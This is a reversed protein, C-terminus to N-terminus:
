IDEPTYTCDRSSVVSDPMGPCFAIAKVTCDTDITFPGDYAESSADPESGDTTYYISAGETDCTITVEDSKCSIVPAFVSIMHSVYYAPGGVQATGLYEDRKGIMTVVDGEKIGLSSFSKDNKVVETATLGYVYVSGTGDTLDFNGYTTNQIGTVVGELQYRTDSPVLSLFDEITIEAPPDTPESSYESELTFTRLVSELMGEHFAVASVVDSFDIQFPETYLISEQTPYSGDLTYYVSAGETGCTITVTNSECSIEPAMASPRHSIYYANIMQPSGNHSSRKGAITVEDDLKLGLSLYNERFGGKRDLLGYVYVESTADQIWIDGHENGKDSIIRGTIEYWTTSEEALLFEQVTVPTPSVDRDYEFNLTKIKGPSFTVDKTLVVIKETGNVSLKLAEGEEATFPKVGIYFEATGEPQIPDADRVSLTAIPSVYTEGRPTYVIPDSAFDIYYQGAIDEEPSVFDIDTVTIAKDLANKVVVKIVSALHNMEIEVDEGSAAIAKGYMPFHEGALHCKDLDYMNDSGYQTLGTKNWLYVYGSSRNEPSQIYQVYPYFAYWDYADATLEGSLFGSFVNDGAYAFAGDNVYESTGSEAHFLNLKDSYLWKTNLGDNATRTEVASAKIEFSVASPESVEVPKTCNALSFAAVAILGCFIFRRNM